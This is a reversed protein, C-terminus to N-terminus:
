PLLYGITFKADVFLNNNTMFIDVGLAGDIEKRVRYLFGSGFGAGLFIQSSQARFSFSNYQGKKVGLIFEPGIYFQNFNQRQWFLARPVLAFGNSLLIGEGGVCWNKWPLVGFKDYAGHFIYGSGINYGFGVSGRSQAQQSQAQANFFM